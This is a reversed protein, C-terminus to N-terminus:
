PLFNLYFDSNLKMIPTFKCKENKLHIVGLQTQEDLPYGSQIAAIYYMNLQATVQQKHITSTTKFDILTKKGDVTCLLDFRGAAVPEGHDDYLVVVKETLQPVIHYIPEVFNFYNEVEPYNSTIPVSDNIKRMEIFNQLENHVATGYDAMKKLVLPNIDAYIDGYVNKLLNTISPLPKGNVIYVHNEPYFEVRLGNPLQYIEKNLSKM